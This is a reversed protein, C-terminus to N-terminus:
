QEAPGDMWLQVLKFFYAQCDHTEGVAAEKPETCLEICRVRGNHNHALISV